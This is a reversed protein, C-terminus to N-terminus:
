VLRGALAARAARAFDKHDTGLANLWALGRNIESAHAILAQGLVQRRLAPDYAHAQDKAYRGFDPSKMMREVSAAPAEGRLHTLVAVLGARPEALFRDFDVWAARPGVEAALDALSLIECAWALAALEGPTLGSQAIRSRLRANLRALRAPAMAIMDRRSGEGALVGAIHAQPASFMLLARSDGARAMMRPAIVNVFSTAKILGRQGQRWTRSLLPLIVGLRADLNTMDQALARLITPERLSFVNDLAGLLRSMLTSGVHGIHFIFDCGAAGMAAARAAEDWPAWALGLGPGLLREDLFSAAVYATEDLEVYGLYGTVPDVAFPLRRPSLWADLNGAPTV